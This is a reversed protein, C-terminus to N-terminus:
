PLFQRVDCNGHLIRVIRIRNNLIRYFAVHKEHVLSRLEKRIEPREKGLKPNTLITEFLTEFGSVYIIAQDFGFERETYEFIDELDRDAKPSLEYFRKPIAM